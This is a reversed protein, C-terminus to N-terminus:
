FHGQTIFIQESERSIGYKWVLVFPLYVRVSYGNRISERFHSKSNIVAPNHIGVMISDDKPSWTFISTDADKTITLWKDVRIKNPDINEKRCSFLVVTFLLLIILQKM